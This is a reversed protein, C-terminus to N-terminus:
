AESGGSGGAAPGMRCSLVPLLSCPFCEDLSIDVPVKLSAKALSCLPGLQREASLMGGMGPSNSLQLVELNDLSSLGFLAKEM